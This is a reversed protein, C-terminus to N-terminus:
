VAGQRACGSGGSRPGRGDSGSINVNPNSPYLTVTVKLTQDEIAFLYKSYMAKEMNTILLNTQMISCAETHEICIPKKNVKKNQHLYIKQGELPVKVQPKRQLLQLFFSCSAGKYIVPNQVMVKLLSVHGVLYVLLTTIFRSIKRENYKNCATVLPQPTRAFM